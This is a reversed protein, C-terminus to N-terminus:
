RKQGLLGTIGVYEQAMSLASAKVQESSMTTYHGGNAKADGVYKGWLDYVIYERVKGDEKISKRL